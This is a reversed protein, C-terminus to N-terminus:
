FYVFNFFICVYLGCLLMTSIINEFIYRVNIIKVRITCSFYKFDLSIHGFYLPQLSLGLQLCEQVVQARVTYFYGPQNTQKSTKNFCEISKLGQTWIRYWDKNKQQQKQCCIHWKGETVLPTLKKMKCRNLEHHKCLLLFDTFILPQVHNVSMTAQRKTVNDKMITPAFVLFLCCCLDNTLLEKKKRM